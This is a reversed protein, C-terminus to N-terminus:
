RMLVANGASAVGSAERVAREAPNEVPARSREDVIRFVEALPKGLMKGGSWGTLAEAIPNAFNIRCDRDTTLVADGISGLTVRLRERETAIQEAARRQWRLSRNSLFFVLALLAAATLTPAVMAVITTRSSRESEGARRDLLAYEASRIAGVEARIEDTLARSASSRVIAVAAAHDGAQELAITRQLEAITRGIARRLRAIRARQGAGPAVEGSLTALERRILQSAKRFTQPYTPNGTLLYGRERRETDRLTSLVRTLDVIADDSHAALRENAILRQANLYGTLAGVFLVVLAVGFAWLPLNRRLNASSPM